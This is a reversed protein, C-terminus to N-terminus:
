IVTKIVPIAMEFIVWDVNLYFIKWSGDKEDRSTPLTWRNSWAELGVRQMFSLLGEDTQRNQYWVQLHKTSMRDIAHGSVDIDQRREGRRKIEAAAVESFPVTGGKTEVPQTVKNAISWNLYSVPVRTILQGRFKGFPM